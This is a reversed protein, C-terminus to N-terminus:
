KLPPITIITALATPHVDVPSSGGIVGFSVYGVEVPVARFDASLRFSVKSKAPVPWEDRAAVCDIEKQQSAFV